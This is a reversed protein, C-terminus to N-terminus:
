ADACGTWNAVAEAKGLRRTVGMPEDYAEREALVLASRM